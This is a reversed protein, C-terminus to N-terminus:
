CGRLGSIRASVAFAPERGNPADRRADRGAEALGTNTLVREIHEVIVDSARDPSFSQPVQLLFAPKEQLAARLVAAKEGFTQELPVLGSAALATVVQRSHPTMEAHFNGIMRSVMWGTTKEHLRVDSGDFREVFMAIALPAERTMRAHPFAQDPRVMMHEPSLRRTARALRPYRTIVPHVQTTLKGLPRSFRVPVLPKRKKAFLHPYIPRHHPKIFMPKFYSLLRGDDDLFAWDDGMFGFGDRQLLKAITSTKGTGGWAPLAIGHGRYEVTAAHIMAVGRTVLIRDVLPLASVLLERTGNLHFGDEDRLIQVGTEHLFLSHDTYEYETEGYSVGEVPRITGTVTLDHHGLRKDTVFPAFMDKLLAATPAGKAVRMSARGHMDFEIWDGTTGMAPLGEQRTQADAGAPAAIGDREVGNRVGIEGGVSRLDALRGAVYGVTTMALGAVIAASRLFGAPDGRAIGDRFGCVVGAPLTRLTYARESALGADAGVLRAVLAKSRGEALCRARFYDQEARRTPVRHTVRARPEFVVLSEPWHQRIRICLETEECGLPRSGIRGIGSRFVGVHDFVTRRFAMNAGIPNRVPSSRRPMGRYSCGVVWLFEEPFWRPRQGVWAPEVAGGIAMVSPDAFGATLHELWAPAAIADDDLFVVIAGTAAAIGSNRAGSLGRAERNPFAVVGELHNRARSLLTPNHDIVVIIERPGPTQARVSDVAVVLDDWRDDAFACIVVSVDLSPL